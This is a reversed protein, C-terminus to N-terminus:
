VLSVDGSINVMNEFHVMFICSKDISKVVVPTELLEVRDSNVRALIIM